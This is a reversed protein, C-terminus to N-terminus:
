RKTTCASQWSAFLADIANRHSPDKQQLTNMDAGLGFKPLDDGRSPLLCGKGDRGVRVYESHSTISDDAGHVTPDLEFLWFGGQEPRYAVDRVGLSLWSPLKGQKGDANRPYSFPYGIVEVQDRYADAVVKRAATEADEQPILGPVLNAKGWYSLDSTQASIGDKDVSVTPICADLTGTLPALLDLSTCILNPGWVSKKGENHKLLRQTYHPILFGQAAFHRTVGRTDSRLLYSLDPEGTLSFIASQGQAIANGRERAEPSVYGLIAFGAQEYVTARVTYRGAEVDECWQPYDTPDCGIATGNWEVTQTGSGTLTIPELIIPGTRGSYRWRLGLPAANTLQLVLGKDSSLNQWQIRLTVPTGLPRKEPGEISVCIAPKDTSGDCPRQLDSRWWEYELQEEIERRRNQEMQTLPITPQDVDRIYSPRLAIAEAEAKWDKADNRDTQASAAPTIGLAIISFFAYRIALNMNKMEVEREVM